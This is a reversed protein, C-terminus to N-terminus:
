GFLLDYRHQVLNRLMTTYHMNTDGDEEVIEIMQMATHLTEKDVIGASVMTIVDQLIEDAYAHVVNDAQSKPIEGANQGGVILMYTSSPPAHEPLISIM